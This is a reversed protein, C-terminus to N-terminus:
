GREGRRGRDEPSLAGDGNRDLRNVVDGFREDLEASTISGDGDEDFSQFADVMMPRMREFYVTAFEDLAVAGDGNADAAEIQATRFADIEAQTVAGDGDGDVEAFLSRMLGPGGFGRGHGRPGHHDGLQMGAPRAGSPAEADPGTQAIALTGVLALPAAALLLIRKSRNFM